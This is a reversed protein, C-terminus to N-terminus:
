WSHITVLHLDIGLKQLRNKVLDEGSKGDCVKPIILRFEGAKQTKVSNSFAYFQYEAQESSITGCTEAEVIILTRQSDNKNCTLDPLQDYYRNPKDKWKPLDAKINLYGSKQFEQIMRRIFDDHQKSALEERYTTM